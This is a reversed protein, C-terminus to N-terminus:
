TRGLDVGEALARLDDVAWVGPLAAETARGKGTRVLAFRVGAAAAAAADTASDGVFLAEARSVGALALAALLNGPAPKRCDCGADPAHPCVFIQELVVGERRAEASVWDHLADVQARSALGRGVCSQNTVVMLRRGVGLRRLGDLAGPTWAWGEPRTVWGGEGEVNLVGDRDLLILAPSLM